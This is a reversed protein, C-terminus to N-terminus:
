RASDPPATAIQFKQMAEGGSPDSVHVEVTYDRAEASGPVVWEIRGGRDITMGDPASVLEFRLDKPDPMSTKVQYVFRSGEELAQPPVSTIAPVNSGIDIRDAVAPSSEGDGDMAVVSAYIRDSKQLRAVNLTAKKEDSLEKGNVFWAYRYTIPDNDADVASVEVYIEASPSPKLNTSAAVIRPPSNLIHVAPAKAVSGNELTTEAEITDGKHFNGPELTGGTVGAIENGDRFWRCTAIEGSSGQVDSLRLQLTSNAFADAPAIEVASTAHNGTSATSPADPAKVMASVGYIVLAGIAIIVALRLM